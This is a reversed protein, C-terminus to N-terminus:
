CELWKVSRATPIASALAQHWLKSIPVKIRKFLGQVANRAAFHRPPDAAVSTHQGSPAITPFPRSSQFFACVQVQM